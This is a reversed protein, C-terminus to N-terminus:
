SNRCCGGCGGTSGDVHGPNGQEEQEAGAFMAFASLIAWQQELVDGEENALTREIEEGSRDSVELSSGMAGDGEVGLLVSFPPFYHAV